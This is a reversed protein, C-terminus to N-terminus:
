IDEFINKVSIPEGKIMKDFCTMCINYVEINGDRLSGYHHEATLTIFNEQSTIPVIQAKNCGACVEAEKPPYKLLGLNFNKIQEKIKKFINM